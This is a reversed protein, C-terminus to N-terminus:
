SHRELVSLMLAVMAMMMIAMVSMVFLDSFKRPADWSLTRVDDVRHTRQQGGRIPICAGGSSHREL